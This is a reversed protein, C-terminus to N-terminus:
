TKRENKENDKEPKNLGSDGIQLTQSMWVVWFTSGLWGLYRVYSDDRKPTLYGPESYCLDKNETTQTKTVM